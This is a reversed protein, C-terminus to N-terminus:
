HKQADRVSLTDPDVLCEPCWAGGVFRGSADDVSGDM